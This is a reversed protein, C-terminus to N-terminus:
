VNMRLGQRYKGVECMRIGTYNIKLDKSSGEGGGGGVGGPFFISLSSLAEIIRKEEEGFYTLCLFTVRKM